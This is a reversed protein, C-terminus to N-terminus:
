DGRTTTKKSGPRAPSAPMSVVPAPTAAGLVDNLGRVTEAATEAATRADRADARVAALGGSTTLSLTDEIRAAAAEIKGAAATLAALQDAHKRRFLM